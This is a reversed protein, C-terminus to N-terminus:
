STAAVTSVQMIPAAAFYNTIDAMIAASAPEAMAGQMDEATNFFLNAVAHHPQGDLGLDAEWKVLQPWGATLMPMHTSVWYDSDFTSGESRPYSVTLRIM